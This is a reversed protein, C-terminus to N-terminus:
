FVGEAPSALPHYGPAACAPYTTLFFVKPAGGHDDAIEGAIGNQQYILPKGVFLSASGCNDVRAGRVPEDPAVM